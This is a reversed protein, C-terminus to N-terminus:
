NKLIAKSWDQYPDKGLENIAWFIQPLCVFLLIGISLYSLYFLGETSTVALALIISLMSSALFIGTVLSHRIFDTRNKTTNSHAKWWALAYQSAEDKERPKELGRALIEFTSRFSTLANIFILGFFGVITAQVGLIAILVQEKLVIVGGFHSIASMLLPFVLAFIISLITFWTYKTQWWSVKDNKAKM